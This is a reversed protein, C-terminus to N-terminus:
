LRITDGRRVGCHKCERVSVKLNGRLRISEHDWDWAHRGLRCLISM